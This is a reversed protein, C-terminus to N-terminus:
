ALEGCHNETVSTLMTIYVSPDPEQKFVETIKWVRACVIEFAKGTLGWLSLGSNGCWAWHMASPVKGTMSTTYKGKLVRHRWEQSERDLVKPLLERWVGSAEWQPRRIPPPPAHKFGTKGVRLEKGSRAKGGSRPGSVQQLRKNPAGEVTLHDVSGWGVYWETSYFPVLSILVGKTRLNKNIGQCYHNFIIKWKQSTAKVLWGLVQHGEEKECILQAGSTFMWRKLIFYYCKLIPCCSFCNVKIGFVNLEYPSLM